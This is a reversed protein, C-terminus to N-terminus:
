WWRVQSQNGDDTAGDSGSGHGGSGGGLAGLLSGWGGGTVTGLLGGLIGGLGGGSKKNLQDLKLRLDEVGLTTGTISQYANLAAPDSAMAIAQLIAQLAEQRGQASQTHADFASSADAGRNMAELMAGQRLGHSGAGGQAALAMGLRRGQERASGMQQGRFAAATGERNQLAQILSLIAQQQTPQMKRAFLISDRVWPLTDYQLAWNNLRWGGWDEGGNLNFPVPGSPTGGDGNDEGSRSYGATPYRGDGLGYAGGSGGTSRDRPELESYPRVQRKAPARGYPANGAGFDYFPM